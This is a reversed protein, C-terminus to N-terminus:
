CLMAVVLVCNVALIKYFKPSARRVQKSCCDLGDSYETTSAAKACQLLQSFVHFAHCRHIICAVMQGAAVLSQIPIRFFFIVNEQFPRQLSICRSQLLSCLKPSTSEGLYGHGLNIICNVQKRFGIVLGFFFFVLFFFVWRETSRVIM